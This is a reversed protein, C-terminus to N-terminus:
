AAPASDGISQRQHRVIDGRAMYIVDEAINVTHDAIRELRCSVNLLNLLPALQVGGGRKLVQEVRERVQRHLSDVENDKNRVTEALEANGTVLADLCDHLMGRVKLAEDALDFPIQDPLPGNAYFCAQEAINVALDAIRELDNNLKLVAVIFRLDMAVPQYLALAYLCTEEIDIEMRDILEDDGIIGAALCADRTEVARMAGEVMEEVRAGLALIRRKIDDIQRELQHSV